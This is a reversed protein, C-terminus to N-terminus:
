RARRPLYSQEVDRLLDDPIGVLERVDGDDNVTLVHLEGSLERLLLTNGYASNAVAASWGLPLRVPVGDFFVTAAPTAPDIRPPEGLTIGDAADLRTRLAKSPSGTGLAVSLGETQEPADQPATSHSYGPANHGSTRFPHIVKAARTPM